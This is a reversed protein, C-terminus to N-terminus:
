KSFDKRLDIIEEALQKVTIGTMLHDQAHILLLSIVSTNGDAEMTLLETQVHHAEEFEHSSLKLLEEAKEFDREKSARIAEFAYSRGEGSHTILLFAKQELEEM